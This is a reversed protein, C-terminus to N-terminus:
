KLLLEVERAEYNEVSLNDNLREYYEDGTPYSTDTVTLIVISNTLKLFVGASGLIKGTFVIGLPIYKALTLTSPKSTRCEIVKMKM